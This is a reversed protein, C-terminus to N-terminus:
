SQSNSPSTSLSSRNRMRNSETDQTLTKHNRRARRVKIKDVVNEFANSFTQKGLNKLEWDALGKHNRMIQKEWQRQEVEFEQDLDIGYKVMIDLLRIIQSCILQIGQEILKDQSEYLAYREQEKTMGKSYAAQMFNMNPDSVNSLRDSQDLGKPSSQIEVM